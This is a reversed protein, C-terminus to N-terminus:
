ARGRLRDLPQLAELGRAADRGLQAGTEEPAGEGVGRGVLCEGVHRRCRAVEAAREVEAGVDCLGGEALRAVCAVKDQVVGALEMGAKGRESLQPAKGVVRLPEQHRHDSHPIAVSAMAQATGPTSRAGREAPQHGLDHLM